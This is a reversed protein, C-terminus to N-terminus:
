IGKPTIRFSRHVDPVKQIESLRELTKRTSPFCANSPLVTITKETCWRELALNTLRAASQQGRVDEEIYVEGFRDTWGAGGLAGHSALITFHQHEVSCFNTLNKFAKGWGPRIPNDVYDGAFNPAWDDHITGEYKKVFNPDERRVLILSQEVNSPLRRVISGSHYAVPDFLIVGHVAIGSKLLTNAATLASSGGRSYGALFLRANGGKHANILFKAAEKGFTGTNGGHFKPGRQYHGNEAFKNKLQSCFSNMLALDYNDNSWPGTGDIIAMYDRTM